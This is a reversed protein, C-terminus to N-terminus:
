VRLTKQVQIGGLRDVPIMMEWLEEDKWKQLIRLEKKSYEISKIEIDTENSETFYNEYHKYLEIERNKLKEPSPLYHYKRFLNHYMRILYFISIAISISFLLSIIVEIFFICFGDIRFENKFIPQYLYFGGAIMLTLLTTPFQVLGNIENKRNIENDYLDKYFNIDALKEIM